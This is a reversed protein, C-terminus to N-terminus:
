SGHVLTEVLSSLAPAYEKILWVLLSSLVTLSAGALVNRKPNLAKLREKNEKIHKDIFASIDESKAECVVEYLKLTRDLYDFRIDWDVLHSRNELIIGQIEEMPNGNNAVHATALHQPVVFGQLLQRVQLVASQQTNVPVAAGAAVIGGQADDEAANT